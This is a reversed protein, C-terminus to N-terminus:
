PLRSQSLWRLVWQAVLTQWTHVTLASPNALALTTMVDPSLGCPSIAQFPALANTINIAIGHATVWCGQKQKVAIGISAIKQPLSEPLDARTVWVGTPYDETAEVPEIGYPRLSAVTTETLRQLFRRMDRMQGQLGTIPYIVVQGPGHYTVEGGRSVNVSPYPAQALMLPTAPDKQARRGVTYVPQVQAIILCDGIAQTLRLSLLRQQLAELDAFPCPRESALFGLSMVATIPADPHDDPAVFVVAPRVLCAALATELAGFWQPPVVQVAQSLHLALWDSVSAQLPVGTATPTDLLPSSLM